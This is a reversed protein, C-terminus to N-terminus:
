PCVARVPFTFMRYDYIRRWFGSGFYMSYAYRDVGDVDAPGLSSSWYEGETNYYTAPLFIQGGNRGTVLFGNVGNKQTWQRSCNNILEQQQVTSPMRWPAGMNVTAADYQTGAIDSGINAHYILTDTYNERTVGWAYYGGYGEPKSAGVNCCCWKTGSPLGLDIAHPHHNDPCIILGLGAEAIPNALIDYGFLEIKPHVKYRVGERLGSFTYQMSYVTNTYSSNADFNGVVNNDEDFLKFGVNAPFLYNGGFETYATLSNTSGNTRTLRTNSFTPALAMSFIKGQNNLNIGPLNVDHSVKWKFFQASASVGYFWNLSVETDRLQEYVATSNFANEMDSKSLVLSGELNVGAEGRLQVNALDANKTHIFDFGM